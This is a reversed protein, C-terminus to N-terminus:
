GSYTPGSIPPRVHPTWKPDAREMVPDVPMQRAISSGVAVDCDLLISHVLIVKVLVAGGSHSNAIHFSISSLVKPSPKSQKASFAMHLRPTASQCPRSAIRWFRRSKM